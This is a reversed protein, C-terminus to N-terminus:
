KAETAKMANDLHKACDETKGEKMTMKASDVEKMALMMASKKMPDTMAKAMEETKMISAEDCAMMGQALAPASLGSVIFTTALITRLM